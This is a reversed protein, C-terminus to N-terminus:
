TSETIKRLVDKVLNGDATKGFHKMVTGMAQMPSKLTSFDINVSIWAAIEEAGAMPPLYTLLLKLYASDSEKKSELVTKESKVLRGIIDLIEDDTIEEHKKVRFSKKGSELTIPVTLSPFEGMIQRITNKANTDKAMLATKLDAKLKELLPIGSGRSWGYTSAANETM